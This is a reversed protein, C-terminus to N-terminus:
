SSKRQIKDLYEDAEDVNQFIKLSELSHVIKFVKEVSPTLSTLIFVGGTEEITKQATFIISLGMSSIYEVGGMDLILAKIPGTSILYNIKSQLERYTISDVSGKPKVIYCANEKKEVDVKLSM